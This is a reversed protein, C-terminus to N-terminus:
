VATLFRLSSPSLISIDDIDSTSLNSVTRVEGETPINEISISSQMVKM